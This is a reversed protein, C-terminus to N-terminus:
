RLMWCDPSLHGTYRTWVQTSGLLPVFVFGRLRLQDDGESTIRVDYVNGNRPDTIRGEWIGPSRESVESIQEGCQSQGRWDRAANGRQLGVIRVCLNSGCPSVSLVGSGDQSLWHGVLPSSEAEALAGSSLVALLLIPQMLASIVGSKM